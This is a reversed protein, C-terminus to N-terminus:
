AEKKKKRKKKPSPPSPQSSLRRDVIEIFGSVIAEETLGLTPVLNAFVHFEDSIESLMRHTFARVMTVSTVSTAGVEDLHDKGCWELYEGRDPLGIYRDSDADKKIHGEIAWPSGDKMGEIRVYDHEVIASTDISSV